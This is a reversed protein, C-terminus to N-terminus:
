ETDTDTSDEDPTDPTDTGLQDLAVREAASRGQVADEWVGGNLDVVDFWGGGRKILRASEAGEVPIVRKHYEPDPRTVLRDQRFQESTKEGEGAEGAAPLRIPDGPEYHEGQHLFESKCISVVM